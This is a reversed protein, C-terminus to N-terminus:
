KLAFKKQPLIYTGATLSLVRPDTKEGRGVANGVTWLSHIVRHIVKNGFLPLAGSEAPLCRMVIQGNIFMQEVTLCNRGIQGGM